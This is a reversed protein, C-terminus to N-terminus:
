TNQFLDITKQIVSSVQHKEAVYINKSYCAVAKATTNGICIINEKGIANKSVYSEVASPSFFLIGDFEGNVKSPVPETHYTIIQKLIINNETLIRPLEPRSKDGSLFTVENINQTVIFQGLDEANKFSQTVSVHFKKLIEPISDGVCYIKKGQLFTEQNHHILSRLANKSTILVVDLLNLHTVKAYTIEIFDKEVFHIGHLKMLKRHNDSVVKTSFISPTKIM